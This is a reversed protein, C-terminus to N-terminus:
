NTLTESKLVGERTVPIDVGPVPTESPRLRMLLSAPRPRLDFTVNPEKALNPPLHFTHGNM